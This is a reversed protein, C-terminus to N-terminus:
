RVTGICLLRESSELHQHGSKDFHAKLIRPDTVGDRILADEHHQKGKGVPIVTVSSCTDRMLEVMEDLQFFRIDYLPDTVKKSDFYHSFQKNHANHVTAIMRGRSIRAQEDALLKIQQDSFLVWFGNHYSLDFAKDAFPMSFASAHHIATEHQGFHSKAKAVAEQSFDMGECNIGCRRLEAMDRFSGAGIELLHREDERLVAHIYHAHRLDNQYQDFIGSWKEDWGASSSAPDLDRLQM